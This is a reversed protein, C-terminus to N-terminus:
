ALDQERTQGHRIKQVHWAEYTLVHFFSEHMPDTPWVSLGICLVSVYVSCAVCRLTESRLQHYTDTFPDVQCTLFLYTDSFGNVQRVHRLYEGATQVLDWM